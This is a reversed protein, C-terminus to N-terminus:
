RKNPKGIKVFIAGHAPVTATFVNDFRGLDKQQWLDRVPQERKVGIDPWRASVQAKMYGRNFLGVAVTGDWLPRAWVETFGTRSKVGAAKGLPDQDVEIVEDNCLLDLSFQDIETLDCSILLPAAILSWLTMQAIQENPTLGAAHTVAGGLRGIMLMDPDNWHGPSVFKELGAQAFGIASVTGWNDGSDGTTRWLNGEVEAGWKWVDGMGYQCLSYVMDRDAQDLAKQMLAYPKKFEDLSNGKAIDGYSCWDHKLFDVGWKAYTKVDQLEHQYSGEFGACTKPGPSTYTGFKLGLRHIHDALAEFDPFKENGVIEGNANRNGQWCDDINVYNYGHAALGTRVLGDAAAIMKDQTVSGFWVYWSNWGMPPTLALKHAGAVITLNRQGKGKPSKVTLSVRYQGPGPSVGSIIGTKADLALGRPLRSAAYTLPQEGTAPVLFLFPKGSTCGVVRPGHIAPVPSNGSHLPIPPDDAILAVTPLEKAGPAIDIAADCWDAHDNSVGDGADGVLLFLKRKGTLDVSAQRPEDSGHMVGSDFALTGDVYVHFQISGGSPREGDVGVTATFRTASGHLDIAFESLAHSGVGHEYTKGKLTLPKGEISQRAKAAGWGVSMKSLDLDELWIRNAPVAQARVGCSATLLVAFILLCCILNKRTTNM